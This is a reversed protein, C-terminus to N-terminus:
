LSLPVPSDCTLSNAEVDHPAPAPPIQRRLDMTETELSRQYIM